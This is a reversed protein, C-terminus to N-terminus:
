NFTSFPKEGDYMGSPPMSRLKKYFDDSTEPGPMELFDKYLLQKCLTCGCFPCEMVVFISNNKKSDIVNMAGTKLENRGPPKDNKEKEQGVRPNIEFTRKCKCIM